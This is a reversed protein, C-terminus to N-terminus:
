GLRNRELVIGKALVVEYIAVQREIGEEDLLIYGLKFHKMLLMKILAPYSKLSQYYRANLFAQGLFQKWINHNYRQQFIHQIQAQTM